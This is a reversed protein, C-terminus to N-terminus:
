SLRRHHVPNLVLDAPHSDKCSIYFPKHQLIHLNGSLGPLRNIHSSNIFHHHNFLPSSLIHTEWCLAPADQVEDTPISTVGAWIIAWLPEWRRRSVLLVLQIRFPHKFARSIPSECESCVNNLVSSKSNTQYRKLLTKFRTRSHFIRTKKPHM